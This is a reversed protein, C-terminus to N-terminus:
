FGHGKDTLVFNRKVGVRIELYTIQGICLRLTKKLIWELGYVAM